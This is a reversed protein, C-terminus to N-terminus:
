RRHEWHQVMQELMETVKNVFISIHGEGELLHPEVKDQPLHEVIWKGHAFPCMLDESAHYLVVPAQIQGLEFGWPHIFALADDILGDAGHKLAEHFTEVFTDGLGPSHLIADKDAPPLLSSMEDVISVSDASLLGQRQQLM